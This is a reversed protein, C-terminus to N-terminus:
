TTGDNSEEFTFKDVAEAGWSFTAQLSGEALAQAIFEMFAELMSPEPFEIILRMVNEQEITKM